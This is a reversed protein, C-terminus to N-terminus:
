FQAGTDSISNRHAGTGLIKPTGPGHLYTTWHRNKCHPVRHFNHIVSILIADLKILLSLLTVHHSSDVFASM